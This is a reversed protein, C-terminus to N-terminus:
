LRVGVQLTIQIQKVSMESKDGYRNEWEVEGSLERYLADIIILDKIAAGAGLAFYFGGKTDGDGKYDANAAFFSYGLHGNIEPIVPGKSLLPIKATAYVPIFRYAPSPGAFNEEDDIERDIQYEFGFGMIYREDVSYMLELSPSIGLQTTSGDTDGGESTSHTAPLDLGLNIQAITREEAGMSLAILMMISFCLVSNKM